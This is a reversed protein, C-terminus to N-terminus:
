ATREAPLGVVDWSRLTDRSDKGNKILKSYAFMAEKHMEKMESRLQVIEGSTSSMAGTITSVGSAASAPMAPAGLDNAVPQGLRISAQARNFDLLTAFDNESLSSLASNLEQMATKADEAAYIQQLIEKNYDNVSSLEIQRLAETDGQVQLLRSELGLREQYIATLEAMSSVNPLLASFSDGLKNLEETIKAM